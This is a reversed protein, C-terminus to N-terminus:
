DRMRMGPHVGDFPDEPSAPVVEVMPDNRLGDILQESGAIYTSQADIETSLFWARDEPWWFNPSHFSDEPVSFDQNVLERALTGAPAPGLLLRARSRFELSIVMDVAGRYLLYPRGSASLRRTVDVGHKLDREDIDGWGSWVCFWSTRPTSTHAELIDALYACSPRDLHGEDPGSGEWETGDDRLVLDDFLSTSALRRGSWQAVRYWPVTGLEPHSAPHLIRGYKPYGEPIWEGVRPVRGPGNLPPWLREGFWATPTPDSVVELGFREPGTV